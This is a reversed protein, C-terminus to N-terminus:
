SAPCKYEVVRDCDRLEKRLRKYEDTVDQGERKVPSPCRNAWIRGKADGDVLCIRPPLPSAPSAASSVLRSGWPVVYATGNVTLARCAAVEEFCRDQATGPVHPRVTNSSCCVTAAPDRARCPSDRSYPFADCETKTRACENDNCWVVLGGESMAPPASASAQLGPVLPPSAQLGPLLPLQSSSAVSPASSAVPDARGADAAPPLRAGGEFLARLGLGAAVVAGASAVVVLVHWPRLARRPRQNFQDNPDPPDSSQAM